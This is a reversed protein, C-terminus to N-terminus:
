STSHRTAWDSDSFGSVPLQASFRLGITRHHSLYMLVRQAAALLEDTPCSLARCFMGVAYAVDPRTHTSCYLLAEVLSQYSLLLKIPDVTRKRHRRALKMSLSRFVTPCTLRSSTLSTIKKRLDCLPPNPLSTWTSSIPFPAKTKSTLCHTLANIFDDYLSGKGDHTYLTFLDDVYCGPTLRQQAGGVNKTM